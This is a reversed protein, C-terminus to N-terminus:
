PERRWYVAEADIAQVQVEEGVSDLYDHVAARCEEAWNYDDVVVYGGPSVKPYLAELADRTSDYLDGDLRLLALREIPASPLTHRFWGPLFRVQDDLLGYRDFNRRVDDLSYGKMLPGEQQSFDVDPSMLPSTYSRETAGQEPTTPFGEFSDAAWVVRDRVDLAKLVGRMFIVSGGRWVGTEILDGPVGATVVDTVIDQVNDLRGIGIMTHAQSPWETGATRRERDFPLFLEDSSDDWPYRIAPDEYIVNTVCRKLLDLYLLAARDTM